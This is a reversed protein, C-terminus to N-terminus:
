TNYTTNLIYLGQKNRRLNIIGINAHVILNYDQHSDYTFRYKKFLNTLSSINSIEKDYYWLKSYDPLIVNM